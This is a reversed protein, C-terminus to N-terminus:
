APNHRVIREALRLFSLVGMLVAGIFIPTQLIWTEIEVNGDTYVGFDRAFVVSEWTSLALVVSFGFVALDAIIETAERARGSIRSTLVDIAIHDGQRYAEAVGFMVIAVLMWGTVEDAWLLPENLFYRMVISYITIAFSILIMLASIAGGLWVVPRAIWHLAFWPAEDAGGDAGTQSGSEPM